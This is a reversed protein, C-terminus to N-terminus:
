IFNEKSQNLSLLVVQCCVEIPALKHKQFKSKKYAIVMCGWRYPAAWIKGEPDIEGLSNRRLYVQSEKPSPVLAYLVYIYLGDSIISMACTLSLIDRLFIVDALPIVLMDAKFYVNM